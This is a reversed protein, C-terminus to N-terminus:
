INLYLCTGSAETTNPSPGTSFSLLEVLITDLGDILSDSGAPKLGGDPQMHRCRRGSRTQLKLDSVESARGAVLGEVTGIPTCVPQLSAAPCQSAALRPRAGSCMLGLRDLARACGFCGHSLAADRGIHLAM